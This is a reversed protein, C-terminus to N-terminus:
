ILLILMRSGYGSFMDMHVRPNIWSTIEPPVGLSQALVIVCDPAKKKNQPTGLSNRSDQRERHNHCVM